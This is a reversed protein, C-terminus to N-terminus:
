NLEYEEITQLIKNTLEDREGIGIKPFERILFIRIEKEIKSRTSKKFEWGPSMYKRQNEFLKKVKKDLNKRKGFKEKLIALVSYETDNLGLRRKEEEVFFLYKHIKKLEEYLKEIEIKRERWANILSEIKESISQYVPTRPKDRLVYRIITLRNFVRSNVTKFNKEIEEAYKEDLKIEPFSKEINKIEISNYIKNLINKFWANVLEKDFEYEGRSKLYLVYIATLFKFDEYVDLKVESPGLLEYLKRLERYKELFEREKKSSILHTLISDLHERDYKIETDGIMKKLEQLLERFDKKLDDFRKIGYEMDRMEFKSYFSLAKNIEKLVGIYDIIIGCEKGREKLPRNTRAISQLLRHGKLPKDLYMVQLVPADFGTLLMDTVILIKPYEEKKFKEIIDKIIEQTDNKKFRKKLQREYDFIEKPDTREFTMVVESYEPPLFEDIYKKYLICARRSFAVIMAKFKGDVNQKFHASIDVCIKRIREGNELFIKFPKLKRLLKGKIDAPIEEEEQSLFKTLLDKKLLLEDPAPKYSIPLTFGDEISEKIFYRDLYYDKDKPYAFEIFTDRGKKSIPTGSFGFFFANRLIRKMQAALIGYQTRHSEDVFAVINKRTMVSEKDKLNTELFSELDKLEKHNFKHIMVVIFGRKGKGEDHLLINKLEKISEVKEPKIGLDLASIEQFIQEQLETRDLIFFLTPNELLKENYLKYAAFIMTLTKGSGQWHWILGKNKNEIGKITNVVRQYIKNAARYQMYRAIVKTVKGKEIRIFIFNKLLDLLKEPPLIEIISDIETKGEEKWVNTEVKEEELWPVNPFYRVNEEAAISFQVYKFLEEVIKEYQKVQRYADEWSVYPDAPNKCEILVLPIGNVYLIIDVKVTEKEKYYVQRSCLFENNQLNEYDILRIYKLLNTAELKIPVGEKLYNLIKRSTEAGPIKNKLENLVRTIDLPSLQVNKNIRKIAEMLNQTLLPEEYSERKLEEAPVFKWGKEQLKKILYDEILLKETPMSM